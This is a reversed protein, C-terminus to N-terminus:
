KVRINIQASLRHYAVSNEACKKKDMLQYYFKSRSELTIKNYEILKNFLLLLLLKRRGM